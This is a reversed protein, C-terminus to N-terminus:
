RKVKRLQYGNGYEVVREGKKRAEQASSKKLYTKRNSPM